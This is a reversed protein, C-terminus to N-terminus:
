YAVKVGIFNPFDMMLDALRFILFLATIFFIITLFKIGKESKEMIILPQIISITKNNFFYNARYHLCSGSFDLFAGLFPL